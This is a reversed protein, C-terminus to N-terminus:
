EGEYKGLYKVKLGPREPLVLALSWQGGDAGIYDYSAVQADIMRSLLISEKVELAKKARNLEERAERVAAMAEDIDTHVPLAEAIVTQRPNRM